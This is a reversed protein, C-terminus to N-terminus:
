AGYYFDDGPVKGGVAKPEQQALANLYGSLTEKMEAGTICVINCHPLAKEAIAAAEVIGYESILKAADAVNANVWNVSEAYDELFAAVAKPNAEVVDKRAVIVGTVMGSGNDLADWEATLDLALPSIETEILGRYFVSTKRDAILQVDSLRALELATGYDTRLYARIMRPAWADLSDHVLLEMGIIDFASAGEPLALGFTSTNGM